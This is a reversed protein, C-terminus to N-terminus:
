GEGGNVKAGELIRALVVEVVARDLFAAISSDMRPLGALENPPDDCWTLIIRM